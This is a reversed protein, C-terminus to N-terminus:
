AAARHYGNGPVWLCRRMFDLYNVLPNPPRDWQRQARWEPHHALGARDGPWCVFLEGPNWKLWGSLHQDGQPWASTVPQRTAPDVFQGLLPETRYQDCTLRLLYSRGDPAMLRIYLVDGRREELAWFAQGAGHKFAESELDQSLADAVM